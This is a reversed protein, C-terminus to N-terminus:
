HSGNAQEKRKIREMIEVQVMCSQCIRYPAEDKFREIVGLIKYRDLGLDSSHISDLNRISYAGCIPTVGIHKVPIKKM